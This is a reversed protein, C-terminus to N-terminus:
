GDWPSCRAPSGSARRAQKPDRETIPSVPGSHAFDWQGSQHPDAGRLCKSRSPRRQPTTALATMSRRRHHRDRRAGLGARQAWRLREGLVARALLVTVGPYLSALVVALGFMGTRTAASTASTRSSTSRARVPRLRLLRGGAGCPLMSRRLVAAAILVVALEGIRGPAVPWLEGSQGANRILLFFLGFSTGSAIGYSLAHRRITSYRPVHGM